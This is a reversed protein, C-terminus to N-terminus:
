VKRFCYAHYFGAAEMEEPSVKLRKGGGAAGDGYDLGGREFEVVKMRESLPGFLPDDKEEEWVENFPKRYELELNYDEALGRFSEFPVVYEPAEVAEELWYTYKWGFPPRFIGEEPLIKSTAPPFSVTYLSNGWHLRDENDDHAEGDVKGDGNSGSSENEQSVRDNGAGEQVARKKYKRVHESIIDSNPTVGVLKGGKKLAASVNTLMIRAKEENEFAYHMCFMMSVVDFGGGPGFGSKVGEQDFGLQAIPAIDGITEGFCDKVFFGADFAPGRGGAGGGYGGRGRGRGGGGRQGMEQYRKSAQQISVEAPDLGTYTVIGRKEWKGLDGGKGCGIDLV